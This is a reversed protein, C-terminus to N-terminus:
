CRISYQEELHHFFPCLVRSGEESEHCYVNYLGIVSCALVSGYDLELFDTWGLRMYDVEEPLICDCVDAEFAADESPECCVVAESM